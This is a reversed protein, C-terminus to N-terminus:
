PTLHHVLQQVHETENFGRLSVMLYTNNDGSQLYPFLPKPFDFLKDLMVCSVFPPALGELELASTQGMTSPNTLNPRTTPAWWITTWWRNEVLKKEEWGDVHNHYSNGHKWMIRVGQWMWETQPMQYLSTLWDKGQSKPKPTLALPPSRAPGMLRFMYVRPAPHSCRVKLISSCLLSTQLLLSAFLLHTPFAPPIICLPVELSGVPSWAMTRPEM